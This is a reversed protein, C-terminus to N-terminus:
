SRRRKAPPLMLSTGPVDSFSHAHIEWLQGQGVRAMTDYVTALASQCRNAHRLAIRWADVRVQVAEILGCGECGVHFRGHVQTYQKSPPDIDYDAMM